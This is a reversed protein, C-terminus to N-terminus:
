ALSLFINRAECSRLKAAECSRVSLNNDASGTETGKFSPLNNFKIVLLNSLPIFPPETNSIILRSESLTIKAFLKSSHALIIPIELFRKNLAKEEGAPEGKIESIDISLYLIFLIPTKKQLRHLLLAITKYDISFILLSNTL